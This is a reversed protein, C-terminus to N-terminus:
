VAQCASMAGYVELCEHVEADRQWGSVVGTGELNAVGVPPSAM